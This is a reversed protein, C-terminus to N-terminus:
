GRDRCVGGRLDTLKWRGATRFAAARLVSGSWGRDMCKLGL